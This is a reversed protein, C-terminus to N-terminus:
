APDSVSFRVVARLTDLPLLAPHGGESLIVMPGWVVMGNLYWQERSTLIGMVDVFGIHEPFLLPVMYTEAIEEGVLEKLKTFNAIAIEKIEQRKPDVILARNESTVETVSIGESFLSAASM